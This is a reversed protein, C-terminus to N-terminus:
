NTIKGLPIAMPVQESGDRQETSIFNAKFKDEGRFKFKQKNV